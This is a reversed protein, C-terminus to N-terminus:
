EEGELLTIGYPIVWEMVILFSCVMAGGWLILQLTFNLDAMRERKMFLIYINNFTYASLKIQLHINLKLRFLTIGYPIVRKM